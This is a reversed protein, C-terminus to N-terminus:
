PGPHYYSKTPLPDINGTGVDKLEVQPSESKKWRGKWYWGTKDSCKGGTDSDSSNWAVWQRFNNYTEADNVGFAAINPADRDYIKDDADPVLKQFSASSTDDVWATNWYDSAGNGPNAKAGDNWDHSIRERKFEWGSKVVNHVGAPTIKAYPVVKGVAKKGGDYSRAGLDETGDYRAGFQVANAPTTGTTKITVTAWIVWIDVHDKVGGLEAEVHLKKSTSRSIKRQNAKGPVPSGSDGSWNLKKWEDPSNNPSTKAEVIVDDSSKKIAAWNKAGTVHTKTAYKIVTLSVLKASLPCKKTVEDCKDSGKKKAAEKNGQKDCTGM